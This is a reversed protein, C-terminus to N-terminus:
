FTKLQENWKKVSSGSVSTAPIFNMQSKSEKVKDALPFDDGFIKNLKNCQGVIDIEDKVEELKTVMIDIKDKFNTMQISTMKAFVDTNPKTPLDMHIRYLERGTDTGDYVFSDKINKVFDILAYLDNAIFKGELYDYKCTKFNEYALLTVGIGHPESNGDASFKINKWRKMYRIIRRYQAKEEKITFKNNILDKLKIPDSEEWKKDESKSNKDGRAMYLQSDMNDMDEYAYVVLDVHFTEDNKKKYTVTVCPEKIEAGYDTHDELIEHVKKKLKLPEYDSKNVIFRLGIDIDYDKDLPEVGTYMAYSGQNFYKFKPLDDNNNLKNIIIDRKETLESKEEYDM